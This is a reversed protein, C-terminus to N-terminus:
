TKEPQPGFVLVNYFLEVSQLITIKKKKKITLCILAIGTSKSQYKSSKIASAFFRNTTVHLIENMM